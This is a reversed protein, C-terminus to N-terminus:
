LYKAEKIRKFLRYIEPQYWLKSINDLVIDDRHILTCHYLVHDEDGLVGCNTCIRENRPKRSWRGTEIPLFHSGLRFKIVDIALPHVISLFPSPTLDPNIKVYIQYKYHGADALRYIKQKIQNLSETIIDNGTAYKTVLEEYHQLYSTKKGLLMQMMKDRRSGAEISKRFRKYFNYQRLLVITKVPLFGSEILLIYNPVNSRVSFCSRLLKMYTTELDKPLQSGFAECNHLLGSMVCSQLVKTKVKLPAPKNARLFNYYKIVCPFRKKMHLRAEEVLSAISSLHSGLLTIYEVCKLFTNGFPLPAHDEETGNVVLFECKSFQPIIRNLGCYTLMSKLKSVASSRDSAIITADDAHILIHLLDFVLKGGDYIAGLFDFVDNIYFLFLLPSLPLGQKIGSYLKYTVHSKGRFIINDTSMYISALCATFVVGAGFLCLKRILTSRCVRDFAGDFDIAILFIKEKFQKAYQTMCRLLFVHDPSGREEQYATQEDAPKFWGKFRRLLIIDFLKALLQVLSIGRYNKGEARM